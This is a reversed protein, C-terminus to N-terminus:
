NCVSDVGCFCIWFRCISSLIFAALAAAAAAAAAAADPPEIVIAPDGLATALAPAPEVVNVTVICFVDIVGVWDVVPAFKDLMPVGPEPSCIFM